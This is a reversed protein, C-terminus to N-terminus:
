LSSKKHNNRTESPTEGFEMSYTRSFYNPDSYGVQYAIDSISETGSKLKERAVSLRIRSVYQMASLGTLAKLKKHLQSRSLFIGRELDHVSFENDDLHEHVLNRIRTIFEDEVELQIDDTKSPIAEPNAYRQHYENFRNLLNQIQARLEDKEFPKLMYVDAGSELGAIRSHADTKASLLIIPIHSTVPNHTLERCVEIGDKVPMLVDCIIMDPVNKIAQTIGVEGNNAVTIRYLDQLCIRLYKVVDAHDEIILVEPKGDVSQIEEAQESITEKIEQNPAIGIRGDAYLTPEILPATRYVPLRVQFQSGKGVTSVATIDGNLLQVLEKVLALGIGSGIRAVSPSSQVQYFREFIRSLEDKPIGVGNDQVTIEIYERDAEHHLSLSIYINEGEFSFKIANSLLNTIITALQAPDYDMLIQDEKCLYHIEIRKAIANGKFSDVVYGLYSVVDGQVLRLPMSGSEMKSLDLIQNILNLLSEANDQIMQSGEKAWRKPDEAIERAMGLILTLPTRFEHTLNTFFRSKFSELEVIRKQEREIQLLNLFNAVKMNYDFSDFFFAVLSLFVVEILSVYLNDADPNIKTLIAWFMASLTVTFFLLREKHSMAFMWSGTFIFGLYLTTTGRHIYVIIAQTLLFAFTIVVMGWIVVGRRLRTEIIWRKRRSIHIAPIIYLLGLTHIIFLSQYYDQKFKGQPFYRSYDLAFLCLTLFVGLWAAVQLRDISRVDKYEEFPKELEVPLTRRVPFYPKLRARFLRIMQQM